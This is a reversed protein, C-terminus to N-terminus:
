TMVGYSDVHNFKSVNTEIFIAQSISLPTFYWTSLDKFNFKLFHFKNESFTLVNINKKGLFIYKLKLKIDPSVFHMKELFLFM